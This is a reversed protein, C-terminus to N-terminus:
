KLYLFSQPPKVGYEEYIDFETDYLLTEKIQIAYGEKRQEFYKYFFEKDVGGYEKTLKWLKDIPEKLVMEIEFEGIVKSIPASAYVVVHTVRKDKFIVKRYEYKKKGTFIQKAFKPKISLIIKM